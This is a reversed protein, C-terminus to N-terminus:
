LTTTQLTRKMASWMMAWATPPNYPEDEELSSGRARMRKKEYPDFPNLLIRGSCYAHKELVSALHAHDKIGFLVTHLIFIGRLTLQQRYFHRIRLWDPPPSLKACSRSASDELIECYKNEAFHCFAFLDEREWPELMGLFSDTREGWVHELPDDVVESLLQFRYVTRTLRIMDTKSLVVEDINISTDIKAEKALNELVWRVYYDILPKVYHTYTRAMGLVEGPTLKDTLSLYRQPTMESYWKLFRPIDEKTDRKVAFADIAASGLTQELSRRLIFRRDYRYQHYFTPSARVLGKLQQIDLISLLYRRLEPPLNDLRCYCSYQEAGRNLTSEYEAQNLGSSNSEITAPIRAANSTGLSNAAAASKPHGITRSM